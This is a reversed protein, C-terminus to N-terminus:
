TTLLAAILKSKEDISVEKLIIELVKEHHENVKTGMAMVNQASLEMIGGGLGLVVKSLEYYKTYRTKKEWDLNSLYAAENFSEDRNTVAQELLKVMNTMRKEFQIREEEKWKMWATLIIFFLKFCQLVLQMVTTAM